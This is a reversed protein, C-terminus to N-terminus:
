NRRCYNTVIQELLVSGHRSVQYEIYALEEPSDIETCVPSEFLLLRRGYLDPKNLVHSTALVDVYGDPIFATPFQQRPLNLTEEKDKSGILSKVYGDGGKRFWKAPSESAKHASRLATANKDKVFKDIAEDVIGPLRLPTTPRLHVWYEPMFSENEQFWHMAHLLWERDTSNDQSIEPPRLFPVEAGYEIALNAYRKSDTSVIVRSINESLQAAAISFAILPIDSIPTVNKDKISKSGSRAPIIAIVNCM